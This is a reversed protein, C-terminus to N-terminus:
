LGMAKRLAEQEAEDATKSKGDSGVKKFGKNEETKQPKLQPMDELVKELAAKLKDTDIEGGSIVESTDALKFVYPMEKATLGLSEAMQLAEVKMESKLARATAKDREATIEDVNPQSKAKKEKFSAIASKMEDETLGQQKFYGKLVSDQAANQKGAVIDALKEYDFEINAKNGGGNGDNNDAAGGNNGSDGGGSGDEAMYPMFSYLHKFINM